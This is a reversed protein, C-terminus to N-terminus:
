IKAVQIAGSRLMKADCYFNVVLRVCGDAALSYNDVTIDLGDWIGIILNSWDGYALDGATAFGTTLCPTGDIDGNQMVFGAGANTGKVMSRFAAKATPSLLYKMNGYGDTGDVGAELTTIGAFNTIQTLASASYFIGAPQTTTGAAAGFITGELKGMIAKEIENRVSREIGASDQVLLMKSIPVVVSLRKPALKVSSFTPTTAATTATEGEWTANATSIIPFQVDGTLGTIIRCGLDAMVSKNHIAAAVDFLDTAVVDTGETTKTITRYEASPLQIQGSFANKSARFNDAGANLVEQTFEDQAKNNAVNRIANVLSFNRKEMKNEKKINIEKPLEVDLQRLEENIKEIQNKIDNLTNNEDENLMRIEKKCSDTIERVQQKLQEKQELLEVSTM